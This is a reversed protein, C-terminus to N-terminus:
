CLGAYAATRPLSREIKTYQDALCDVVHAGPAWDCYGAAARLKAAIQNAATGTMAATSSLTVGQDRDGGRGENSGSGVGTSQALAGGALLVLSGLARLLAKM